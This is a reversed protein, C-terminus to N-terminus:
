VHARGIKGALAFTADSIDGRSHGSERLAGDVASSLALACADFGVREWNGTAAVGLGLIDGDSNMLAAHTKTGGADVGLFIDAMSPGWFDM